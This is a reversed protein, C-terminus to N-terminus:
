VAQPFSVYFCSGQQEKSEVRIQGNNKEIFEKCLKLGLGTGKENATGPQSQVADSYFIADKVMDSMGTGYDRILITIMGNIKEFRIEIAGGPHSYKVANSLLNRLVLRLHEPDVWVSDTTEAIDLQINKEELKQKLIQFKDALIPALETKQPAATIGQLQSLSWRLLNDLTNHLQDVQDSIKAAIESFTEPSIYDHSVLQLSGKLQGIPSRLDHAIISFLKEKTRNTAQLENNKNEIEKLYGQQETKFFWLAITLLALSWALNFMVRSFPVTDYVFNSYQHFVKIGIFLACNLVSTVVLYKTKTFFIVIIILNALLFYEGGNRYFLASIGFVVSATIMLVMRALQYKRYSHIILISIGGLLMIINFALLLYKHDLLNKTGFYIKPFCGFAVILNIVQTKKKELFDLEKYVGINAVRKGIAYLKGFLPSSMLENQVSCHSLVTLKGNGTAPLYRKKGYAAM